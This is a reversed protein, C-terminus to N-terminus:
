VLGRTLDIFAAEELNQDGDTEGSVDDRIRGSFRYEAVQNADTDLLELGTLTTTFAAVRDLVILYDHGVDDRNVIKMRVQNSIQGDALTSYPTTMGRLITIDATQRNLLLVALLGFVALVLTPYVIVRFRLMRRPRGALDDRSSYRVLGDERVHLLALRSRDAAYVDVADYGFNFAPPVAWVHADRPSM